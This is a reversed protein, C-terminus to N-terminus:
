LEKNVNARNNTCYLNGLTQVPATPEGRV